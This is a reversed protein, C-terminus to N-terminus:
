RNIRLSGGEMLARVESRNLWPLDGVITHKLASLAVGCDLGRQLDGDFLGDLLGSVFADGAGLRDVIEVEYTRTRRLSGREYAVATWSNKWVSHVQRLTMAIAKLHFQRVAQAMAQEIDDQVIHFFRQIDEPNTVLVDVYPIAQNLWAAADAVTWLRARYNPDLCTSLGMRRATALAELTTAAATPSIAATIGTVYFWSAGAFISPWDITGPTIRAMASNARDYVISSPRPAAGMELYYVGVRDQDTWQIQGIDVGGARARNAIIQGLPNETLRSIWVAHRGLRALGFATNLEAGGIELDLSDTQELRRSHPPTLRIMAEGFTIIKM